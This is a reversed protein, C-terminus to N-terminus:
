FTVNLGITVTRSKPYASWDFGPTLSSHRVSVEPDIGSYNTWTVLNQAAIYTRINKIRVQKLVASPINYGFSLTKLRLFSGDEIIRDSYVNPGYGKAVPINTNQNELTWRNEMSKFMNVNERAESGEFVIRNANLIDNGYSWQFFINLDFNGLTFNNSFGGVHKPVPNGIVTQDEGDVEGDGNIDKYKTFGPQIASRALGNNPVGAKLIYEGASSKDFDSLQYLGDFAFGYYQAVPQGEIAIYPLSNNFNSNWSTIRTGLSNQEGNLDVLKNRNFAINFSTSWTFKNTQFNVTNLSFEIGSNSVTGINKFGTLYGASAPLSADLLLDSTKKYYYDATISIRNNLLGLDLGFNSQATREWVLENNGVATPVTGQFFTNNFYYGSNTNASNSAVNQRLNSLYAFDSVRNNGTVGYSVRLKADTIAPIAQMFNEESLRWAFSGSPFYGWRNGPAFRSSGDSRFSATFLYKSNVAYNIRGLFSALTSTSASTVAESVTGENLGHIGLGENPILTSTFGNVNSANSQMTFGALVHLEHGDLIEKKYSLTNENLWSRTEYNTISGNIGNTAGYVTVPSGAATKSNNFIDRKRMNSSIGGTVRLTFDKLFNYEIYANALLSKTYNIDYKNRAAQLPNVRLDVNSSIGPDFSEELFSEDDLDNGTLPRYGWGSYFFYSSANGTASIGEKAVQGYSKTQSYNVTIGTKFHSNITQDISIRGQYRGFGGNIIIGEQDVLSGSLSYKTKDNGGRLSLSHNQMPATQLIQDQWDIGTVNRYSELTKGNNLYVPGYTTPNLELQYKVFEYASLVEQKKINKQIGYWGNYSVVPAGTKGKKTTIMIVGNAGRAGYIATSSADKLVEISEIEEPNLTNNDPSEIPFGDIVYLPNNSQTISNGGRIVINNEAGPQGDVSSVVVGAVRGGLADEFSTVPAKGLDNMKVHGVAGTLDRRRTTGYGVVVVNDLENENRSLEIDYIFTNPELRAEKTLYGVYSFVLTNRGNQVPLITYSGLSDSLITTNTGKLQVSVGQLLHGQEDTIKGSVTKQSFASQSVLLFILFLPFASKRLCAIEKM